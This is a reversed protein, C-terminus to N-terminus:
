PATAHYKLRLYGRPAATPFRVEITEVGLDSSIIREQLGPSNWGVLDRSAQSFLTGGNVAGLNRTYLCRMFGGELTIPTMGRSLSDLPHSAHLYEQWNKLGDGDPDQNDGSVADDVLQAPSFLNSKWTAVPLIFNATVVKSESMVLSHAVQTSTADGSWHSFQWGAAPVATLNATNGVSYSGQDALGSISGLGRTFVQLTTRNSFNAALTKNADMLITIQNNPSYGDGSWGTFTAGKGASATLSVQAKHPYRMAAFDRNVQGNGNTLVNFSWEPITIAATDSIVTNNATNTERIESPGTLQMILFNAGTLIENPLTFSVPYNQSAGPAPIAATIDFTGLLINKTDGFFRNKALWATVKWVGSPPIARGFNRISVNTSINDGVGLSIATMSPLNLALDKDHFESITGNTFLFLREGLNAAYQISNFPSPTSSWTLGTPGATWAEVPYFAVTSGKFATFGDPTYYIDYDHNGSGASLNSTAWATGNSTVFTIEGQTWILMKGHGILTRLPMNSNFFGINGHNQLVDGAGLSFGVYPTNFGSLAAGIVVWRNNFWAVAAGRAIGTVVLQTWTIGGNTSRFLSGDTAILMWESGNWAFDAWNKAPLGTVSTFAAGDTTRHLISNTSFTGEMALIESGSSVVKAFMRDAVPPMGNLTTNTWTRGNDASSVLIRNGAAVIRGNLEAMSQGVRSDFDTSAGGALTKEWASGDLSRWVAGDNGILLYFDENALIQSVRSPLGQIVNWTQGDRSTVIGGAAAEGVFLGRSHIMKRKSIPRSLPQWTVADKSFHSYSEYTGLFYDGNLKMLLPLHTISPPLPHEQWDDAESDTSLYVKPTSWSSQVVVYRGDAFIGASHDSIDRLAPIPVWNYGNDVTRYGGTKYSAAGIVTGDGPSATWALYGDESDVGTEWILGDTSTMVSGSTSGQTQYAAIFVGSSFHVRERVWYDTLNPQFHTWNVGDRTSMIGGNDFQIVLAGNGAAMGYISNAFSPIPIKEWNKGDLSRHISRSGAAYFVGDFTLSQNAAIAGGQTSGLLNDPEAAAVKLRIAAMQRLGQSDRARVTVTHGKPDTINVHFRFSNGTGSAVIQSDLYCDYSASGDEPDSITGEITVRSGILHTSATQPSVISVLPASGGAHPTGTQIIGGNKMIAVLQGNGVAIDVVKGPTFGRLWTTANDSYYLNEDGGLMVLFTGFTFVRKIVFGSSPLGTTPQSTWSTGNTSDAARIASSTNRFFCWSKGGFTAFHPTSGTLGTSTWSTGNTSTQILLASSSGANSFWRNGLSAFKSSSNITMGTPLTAASWTTSGNARARLSSAGTAPTSVALANGNPLQAIFTINPALGITDSTNLRVDFPNHGSYIATSFDKLGFHRGSASGTLMVNPTDLPTNPKWTIGDGSLQDLVSNSIYSPNETRAIFLSETFEVSRLISSKERPIAVDFPGNVVALLGKDTGYLIKSGFSAAATFNHSNAPLVKRFKIDNPDSFHKIFQYEPAFGVVSQGNSAMHINYDFGNSLAIHRLWNTGDPSSYMAYTEFLYFKSGDHFATASYGGSTTEPSNTEFEQWTTGNTSKFYRMRGSGNNTGSAVILTNGNSAIRGKGTLNVTANDLNTATLRTWTIGDTSRLFDQGYQNSVTNYAIFAGNHGHLSSKEPSSTIAFGTPASITWSVANDTSTAVRFQGATNLGICLFRTGAKSISNGSFGNPFVSKTWNVGDTSRLLTTASVAFAEGNYVKIDTIAANPIGPRRWEWRDWPSAVVSLTFDATASGASNTATLRYAGSDATTPSLITITTNAGAYPQGNKTWAYTMPTSGSFNASLSLATGAAVAQNGSSWTLKPAIQKETLAATNSTVSNETTWIQVSYNGLDVTRVPDIVINSSTQGPIAQGNLFWQYTLDSNSLASVEFVARKGLEVAVPVPKRLITLTGSRFGNLTIDGAADARFSDVAIHYTTGAIAPFLVQSTWDLASRDDNSAVEVLSNADSGTYVALATDFASGRTNFTVNMDVPATWRWWVSKGQGSRAHSKKSEFLEATASRNNGNVSFLDGSVLTADAFMDNPPTLSYQLLFLQLQAYNSVLLVRYETDPKSTFTLKRNYGAYPDSTQLTKLSQLESGEYIAVSYLPVDSTFDLSVLGSHPTRFAFWFGKTGPTPAPIIIENPDRAVGENNGYWVGSYGEFRQANAFIDLGPPPSTGGLLKAVNLRGGTSCKNTLATIKDVSSYLRRILVTLSESPFQAMALALAGSVHPTAMSTGNLFTYQNNSGIYSSWIGSGPAAIDVSNKGYCSFSSLADASTTSAVSVINSLNYSSPYHPTADNNASSNGAAAVFVIGADACAKLADYLSQSYGGGGWSASIVKAGNQRAYNVVRISDSTSGGNPGLFRVGMLKVQWAVGTLGVGNNGRGGITGACHTGHGGVDMPDNDNDYADFGYSGNTPHVWMNPALDEHNYQIGTDTVAVVISSADSRIDWAEPADIDADAKTGAATGPNHLGWMKGQTYAPDNPALCPFVLYDPEAHNIFEELAALDEAAASQDEAASFEPLEALLYSGEEIARISFGKETIAAAARRFDVGPKLGIMVHDAVSARILTVKQMGTAPDTSVEEELRLHSYKFNADVIRVRRRNSLKQPTDIWQESIVRKIASLLPHSSDPVAATPTTLAPAVLPISAVPAKDAQSFPDEATDAASSVDRASHAATEQTSGTFSKEANYFFLVAVLALLFCLFSIFAIHKRIRM